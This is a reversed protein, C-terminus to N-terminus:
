PKPINDDHTPPKPIKNAEAAAKKAAAEREARTMTPQKVLSKTTPDLDAENALFEQIEDQTAARQNKEEETIEEFTKEVPEHNVSRMNAKRLLEQEDATLAPAAANTPISAAVTPGPIAEPEPEVKVALVKTREVKEKKEEKKNSM